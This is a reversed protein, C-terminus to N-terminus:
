FQLCAGPLPPSSMQSWPKDVLLGSTSPVFLGWSNFLISSLFSFCCYFLFLALILVPAFVLFALIFFLVALVFIYLCLVSCYDSGWSDRETCDGVECGVEARLKKDSFRGSNRSKRQKRRTKRKDNKKEHTENFACVLSRCGFYRRVALVAACVAMLGVYLSAFQMCTREHRDSHPSALLWVLTPTATLWWTYVLESRKNTSEEKNNRRM